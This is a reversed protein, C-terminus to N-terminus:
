GEKPTLRVGPRGGNQFTIGHSALADLIAARSDSAIAAGAEFRRLTVVSVSCESALDKATWGLLARAAKVHPATLSDPTVKAM